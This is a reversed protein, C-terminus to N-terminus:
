FLPQLIAKWVLFLKILKSPHASWLCWNGVRLTFVSNLFVEMNLLQSCFALIVIVLFSLPLLDVFCLWKYELTQFRRYKCRYVCVPPDTCRWYINTANQGLYSCLLSPVIYASLLFISCNSLNNEEPLCLTLILGAWIFAFITLPPSTFAEDKITFLIISSGWFVETIEWKVLVTGCLETGWANM